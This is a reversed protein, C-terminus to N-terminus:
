QMDPDVAAGDLEAGPAYDTNLYVTMQIRSIEVEINWKDSAEYLLALTAGPPVTYQDCFPEVWVQLVAPTVNKITIYRFPRLQTYQTSFSRRRNEDAIVSDSRAARRLLSELL